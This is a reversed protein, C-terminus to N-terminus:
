YGYEFRLISHRCPLISQSCTLVLVNESTAKIAKLRNGGTSTVALVIAAFFATAVITYHALIVFSASSSSNIHEHNTVLVVPVPVCGPADQYNTM